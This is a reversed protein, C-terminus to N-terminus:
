AIKFLTDVMQKLEDLRVFEIIESSYGNHLKVLTQFPYKEEKIVFTLKGNDSSIYHLNVKDDDPEIFHPVIKHKM